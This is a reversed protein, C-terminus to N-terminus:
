NKKNKKTKKRRKIKNEKNEKNSETVETAETATYSSCISDMYNDSEKCQTKCNSKGPNWPLKQCGGHPADGSKDTCCYFGQPCQCSDSESCTKITTPDVPNYPKGNPSIFEGNKIEYITENIEPLKEVVDYKKNENMRCKFLNPDNLLKYIDYTDYSNTGKYFENWIPVNVDSNPEGPNYENGGKLNKYVSNLNKFCPENKKTRGALDDLRLTGIYIAVIPHNDDPKSSEKNINEIDVLKVKRSMKPDCDQKQNNLGSEDYCEKTDDECKNILQKNPCEGIISFYNGEGNGSMDAYGIYRGYAIDKKAQDLADKELDPGWQHNQFSLENGLENKYRLLWKDIYQIGYKRGKIFDGDTTNYPKSGELFENKFFTLEGKLDAFDRNNLIYYPPSDPENLKIIKKKDPDKVNDEERGFYAYFSKYGNDGSEGIKVEDVEVSKDSEDGEAGEIVSKNTYLYTIILVSGILLIKCNDKVFKENTYILLFLCILFIIILNNM